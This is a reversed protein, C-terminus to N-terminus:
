IQSICLTKFREGMANPLILGQLKTRQKLLTNPTFHQTFSEFVELIECMDILAKAQTLCFEEKAGYRQFIRCLLSFDVDYSIDSKMFFDLIKGQELEEYFNHVRHKYFIRLNMERALFDGYDFTLFFWKQHIQSSLDAIFTDWSLPIEFGKPNYQEYFKVVESDLKDWIFNKNKYYLMSCDRVVECPMSDFLENAIFFINNKAFLDLEQFSSFIHLEKQFRQTIRTYFNEKQLPILQQLPEVVCFTSAVFVENSFAKIFEAIDAVLDGNNSGIEVIYIPLSLKSSELIKLIFRSIAGGFFKTLSVSTYFDGTKGVNNKTYYGMKSDYLWQFMFHSFHTKERM